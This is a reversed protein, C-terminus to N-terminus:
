GGLSNTDSGNVFHFAYALISGVSLLHRVWCIVYWGSQESDKAALRRLQKPAMRWSASPDHPSPRVLEVWIVIGKLM